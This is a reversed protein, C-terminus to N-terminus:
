VLRCCQEVVLDLMLIISGSTSLAAVSELASSSSSFICTSADAHCIIVEIVGVVHIRDEALQDSRIKEFTLTQSDSNM